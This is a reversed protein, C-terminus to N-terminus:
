AERKKTNILKKTRRRNCVVKIIQQLSAAFYVDIIDHEDAIPRTPAQKQYHSRRQLLDRILREEHHGQLTVAYLWDAGEVQSKELTLSIERTYYYFLLL